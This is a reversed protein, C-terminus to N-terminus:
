LALLDSLVSFIGPQGNLAWAIPKKSGGEYVAQCGSANIRLATGGGGVYNLDVLYFSRDDNPCSGIHVPYPPLSDLQTALNELATPDSIHVTKKVSLPPNDNVGGYQWVDASVPHKRIFRDGHALVPLQVGDTSRVISRNGVPTNLTVDAWATNYITGVDACAGDGHTFQRLIMAVQVVTSTETARAEFGGLCWGGELWTVGVSITRPDAGLMVIQPQIPTETVGARQYMRLAAGVAWVTAPIGPILLAAVGLPLWRRISKSARM